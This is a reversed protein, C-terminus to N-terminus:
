LCVVANKPVKKEKQVIRTPKCKAGKPCDSLAIWGDVRVATGPSLEIRPVEFPAYTPVTIRLSYRGPSLGKFMFTGDDEIRIQIPEGSSPTLIANGDLDMRAALVRGRLTGTPTPEVLLRPVSDECYCCGIVAASVILELKGTDVRDGGTIVIPGRRRVYFGDARFRVYYSGPSVESFRFRGYQDTRISGIPPGTELHALEALANPIIAGSQDAVIGEIAGPSQAFMPLACLFLLWM